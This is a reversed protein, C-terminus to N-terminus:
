RLAMLSTSLVGISFLRTQAPDGTDSVPDGHICRAGVAKSRGYVRQGIM